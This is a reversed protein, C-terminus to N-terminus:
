HGRRQQLDGFTRFRNGLSVVALHALKRTVILQIQQRLRKVRHRSLQGLRAILDLLFLALDFVRLSVQLSHQGVQRGADYHQILIKVQYRGVM